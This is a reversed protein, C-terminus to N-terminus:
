EEVTIVERLSVPKGDKTFGELSIEYDGLNDSTYFKFNIENASLDISPEWLLQSRYDPIRSSALDNTEEYKQQYYNKKQEPKFLALDTVFDGSQQNEYEGSITEILVVGQYDQTGFQYQNRVVTVGLVKRADYALFDKPDQVFVGDIFLLPPDETPTSFENKFVKITDNGNADKATWVLKVIERFVEEMTEFRTYDDLNYRLKKEYYIFPKEPSVMKVTDPKISFYANEIQNYISREVIATEMSPTIRFSNFSIGSYDILDANNLEIRYNERADSVVQITSTERDWHPDLSFSFEGRSNTTLVKFFFNKGSISLAVNQGKALANAKKEFVKGSIISGKSESPYKVSGTKFKNADIRLKAEFNVSNDRPFSPIADIKRISLSYYGFGRERIFNKLSLEVKTRKKFKREAFLLKFESYDDLKTQVVPLSNESINIESVAGEDMETNMLSSQNGRYPNIISIDAQFFNATGINRMRQTYAVLKYNGSPVSNPIFFDGQGQSNILAIKHNFVNKEDEGILEVYVIKSLRSLTRKTSNIAYVKYYLYEGTFFLSANHHVFINERDPDGSNNGLLNNKNSTQADVSVCFTTFLVIVTTLLKRM